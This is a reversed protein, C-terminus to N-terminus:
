CHSLGRHGPGVGIWGVGFWGVGFWSISPRGFSVGAGTRIGVRGALLKNNLQEVTGHGAHAPLAAIALVFHGPLHRARYVAAIV